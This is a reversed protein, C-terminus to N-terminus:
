NAIGEGYCYGVVAEFSLMFAIFDQENKVADISQNLWTAFSDPIKKRKPNTAYSVKAKLMKLLPAIRLFAMKQAHEGDIQQSMFQFRRELTKCENYFRRLQNSNLAKDRANVFKRAQERAEKDLLAERIHGDDNYYFGM